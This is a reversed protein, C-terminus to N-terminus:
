ANEEKKLFLHLGNRALALRTNTTGGDVSLVTM